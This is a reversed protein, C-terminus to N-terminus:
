LIVDHSSVISCQQRQRGGVQHSFVHRRIRHHYSRSRGNSLHSSHHDVRAYVANHDHIFGAPGFADDGARIDKSRDGV